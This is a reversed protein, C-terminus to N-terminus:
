INMNHLLRNEKDKEWCLLSLESYRNEITREEDYEMYEYRILEFIEPKEQERQKMRERM